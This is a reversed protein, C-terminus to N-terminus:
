YMKSTAFIKMWKITQKVFSTYLNYASLIISCTSRKPLETNHNSQYRKQESVTSFLKSIQHVMSTFNMVIIWFKLLLNYVTCLIGYKSKMEISPTTVHVVFWLSIILSLYSPSVWKHGKYIVESSTELGM